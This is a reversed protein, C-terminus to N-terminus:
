SHAWELCLAQEKARRKVLGPLDVLVGAVSGKSWRPLQNCAATYDKAKLYRAATSQRTDCAIREGLNFSADAFAALVKEPLGPQCTDVAVIASKMDESLLHGCEDVKYYRGKEVNAGTHGYCVTIIGVPDYYAWQRLGEAPVAIATALATAVAIRNRSPLEM